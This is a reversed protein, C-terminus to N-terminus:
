VAERLPTPPPSVLPVVARGALEDMADVIFAAYHAEIMESSTDHLAAVLRVPLGQRLGRVISSHRLAYPVVEAALGAKLRVAKWPRVLESPNLWPSPSLKRWDAVTVQQWRPRLLLTDNGKRGAMAPKLLDLVDQGVRVAIHTVKKVGKGKRSVPVMVRGHAAQVDVVRMRALQSFRAGTAALLAVFRYFHGDWGGEEDVEKAAALVARVDADPLVQAERAVPSVAETSRLGTKVELAFGGPLRKRHRMAAGNLAAKLDSSIRSVTAPKLGALGDKWDALHEATLEHLPRAALTADSLVHRKMRLRTDASGRGERGDFTAAYDEVASAVTLGPLATAKRVQAAAAERAADQAQWYTLTREGDADAHDDAQALTEVEYRGDGLYRRLLWTGGRKGRRYGMHTGRDLVRWYPKSRVKLRERAARTELKSDRVAKAM